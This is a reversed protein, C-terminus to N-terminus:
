QVARKEHYNAKALDGQSRFHDALTKHIQWLRPDIRVANELSAIYGPDGLAKECRALLLAARADRRMKSLAQLKPIAEKFKGGRVLTEAALFRMTYRQAATLTGSEEAKRSHEMVEVPHEPFNFNTLQYDLIGDRLGASRVQAFLSLARGKFEAALKKDHTKDVVEFYGQGLSLKLDIDGVTSMDLVPVLKTMSTPGNKRAPEADGHIGVRHHTFALHPIDTPGTPMHCHVCNNGPEKKQRVVPDVKCKEPQHCKLCINKFHTERKTPSPEHHPDHCTLCSFTKDEKYCRSQHMQEVHGVVTM